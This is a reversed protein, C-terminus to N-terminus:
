RELGTSDALAVFEAKLLLDLDRRATRTKDFLAHAARDLLIGECVFQEVLDDAAHLAMLAAQKSVNLALMRSDMSAIRM